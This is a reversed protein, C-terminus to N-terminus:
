ACVPPRRGLWPAAREIDAALALLLDERFAAGVLQTGIPLGAADHHLPLSMAPQGSVNFQATYPIVRSVRTMTPIPDAPDPVLEGIRVPPCGLTPSLLLDHDDWFAALRRSWGHLWALSDLYDAGSIGRGLVAFTWNSAEIDDPGIQRGLERSWSDVWQTAAVMILNVYHRGFEPDDLAVPWAVEVHHGLSELLAATVGVAETCDADAAFGPQLPHDLVGIRLPATDGAGLGGVEDVYPRVPPPATYPDGPFWGNVVDLFAATDRVTLSVCGDTSAGGWGEGQQPGRSIRGRSPKLGFVGCASAPIRISGGGDSAHALPVMRSAVASASGGSSGGASHDPNWPNRTPGYAEPETTCTSGLEPTNTRGLIVFGAEKLRTVLHGDVAARWDIARLFKAGTHYPEGALQAGLDKLLLPVGRFPGDPLDGAAEALAAEFRPQIVANLTPNLAEIRAIAANVLETPSAEGSRVLEAQATADRDVLDTLDHDSM